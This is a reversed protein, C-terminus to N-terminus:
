TLRVKSERRILKQNETKKRGMEKHEKVRATVNWHRIKLVIKSNSMSLTTKGCTGKRALRNTNAQMRGTAPVGSSGARDLRDSSM